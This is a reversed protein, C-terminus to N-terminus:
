GRTEILELIGRVSTCKLINEESIELGKERELYLMLNLHGLSDWGAVTNLMAEPGIDEPRAGFLQGMATRVDDIM